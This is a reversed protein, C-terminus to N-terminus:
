KKRAQAWYFRVGVGVDAEVGRGQTLRFVPGGELFLEIPHGVIWYDLGALTRIAFEPDDETELRPGFGAYAGLKGKAPQPFIDWGHWLYDAYLMFDNDFGLGVDLAQTGSRWFKATAGIPKGLIVGVGAQGAEQSWAVGATVLLALVILLKKEM